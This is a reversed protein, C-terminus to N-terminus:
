ACRCEGCLWRGDILYRAGGIAFSEDNDPRQWASGCAECPIAIPMPHQGDGDYSVGCVNSGDGPRCPHLSM